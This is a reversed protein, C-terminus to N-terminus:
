DFFALTVSGQWEGGPALSVFSGVQGPELCVYRDAGGEEM